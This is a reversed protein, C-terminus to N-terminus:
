AVRFFFIWEFGFPVGLVAGYTGAGRAGVNLPTSPTRTRASGCDM